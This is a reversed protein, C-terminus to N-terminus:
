RVFVVDQDDLGTMRQIAERNLGRSINMMSFISSQSFPEARMAGRLCGFWRGFFLTCWTRCIRALGLIKNVLGLFLLLLLSETSCFSCFSHLAELPLFAV